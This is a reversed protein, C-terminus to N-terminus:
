VCTVLWVDMQLQLKTSFPCGAALDVFTFMLGNQLTYNTKFRIIQLLRYTSNYIVM